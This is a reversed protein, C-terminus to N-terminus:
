NKAYEMLQAKGKKPNFFLLITFGIIFFPVIVLLIAPRYSHFEDNFLGLLLPGIWVTAGSTISQMSFYSSEEEKPIIMSSLSKAFTQLGGTAISFLGYVVFFQTVDYM